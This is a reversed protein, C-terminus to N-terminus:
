ASNEGLTAGIKQGVGRNLCLLPLDQVHVWFPSHTFSIQSPPTVGDFENLVILNRDFLWPRGLLVKDRDGADSFEFLWIRHQIEKFTIRGLPKWLRTLLSRFAERNVKKETGVRGVLCRAVKAREKTIEGETIQIGEKEGESLSLRGCLLDIDADERDELHQAGCM